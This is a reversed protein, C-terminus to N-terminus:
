HGASSSRSSMLSATAAKRQRACAPLPAASCLSKRCALCCDHCPTSPNLQHRPFCPCLNSALKAPQLCRASTKAPAACRVEQLMAVQVASHKAALAAAALEERLQSVEAERQQVERQAQALVEQVQRKVAAAAAAAAVTVASDLEEELQQVEAEREQLQQRLEAMSLPRDSAAAGSGAPAQPRRLLAAAATVGEAGASALQEKLQQVEQDREQLQQRLKAVLLSQDAAAAGSGAPAQPRYLEAAAPVAAATAAATSPPAPKILPLSSPAPAPAPAAAALPPEAAPAAALATQEAPTGPAM